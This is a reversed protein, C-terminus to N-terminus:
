NLCEVFSDYGCYFTNLIKLQYELCLVILLFKLRNLDHGPCQVIAVLFQIHSYFFGLSFFLLLFFVDRHVSCLWSYVLQKQWLEDLMQLHSSM